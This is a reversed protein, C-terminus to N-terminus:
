EFEGETNGNLLHVFKQLEELIDAAELLRRTDRYPLNTEPDRAMRRLADPLSETM